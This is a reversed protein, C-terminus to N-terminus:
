PLYLPLPRRTCVCVCRRATDISVVFHSIEEAIDALGYALDSLKGSDINTMRIYVAYGNRHFM